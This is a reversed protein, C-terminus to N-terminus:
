HSVMLKVFDEPFGEEKALAEIPRKHRLAASDAANPLVTPSEAPLVELGGVERHKTLLMAKEQAGRIKQKKATTLLADVSVQWDAQINLLSELDDTDRVAGVLRRRNTMTWPFLLGQAFDNAAAENERGASDHEMVFHGLEHAVDWRQRFYDTDNQKVVIVRRGGVVASCADLGEPMAPGYVVLVGLSEALNVLDPMPTSLDLGLRARLHRASVQGERWTEPERLPDPTQNLEWTGGLLFTAFIAALRAYAAFLDREDTMERASKRRFTLHSAPPIPDPRLLFRRPVDLARAVADLNKQSPTTVRDTDWNRLTSEAVGSESAVAVFTAPIKRLRAALWVADWNVSVGAFSASGRTSQDLSDDDPYDSM